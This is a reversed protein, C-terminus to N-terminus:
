GRARLASAAAALTQEAWGVWRGPTYTEAFHERSRRGLDHRREPDDLLEVVADVFREDGDAVVAPFDPALGGTAIPSVVQAVGFMAADLVKTQIGSAHVLPVAALRVRGMLEGLDDFDVEVTWGLGRALQLVEPTPEAGALLMTTSPRRREISPWMRALREIAEVNPEYSLKGVFVVDHTPDVGVQEPPLRRTIPVWDLGLSRADAWGAAIGIMGPPVPRGEFRAALASLARFGLSRASRGRILARDRYSDSLRDVYDLVITWPGDRLSPHYCRATACLVVAPGIEELTTRVSRHSWALSEPVARGSLVPGVGPHLLDGPGARHDVLLPVDVIEAGAQEFIDALGATRVVAGMSGRRGLHVMAVVPAGASTV